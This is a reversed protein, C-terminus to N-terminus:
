NSNQLDVQTCRVRKRNTSFCDAVTLVSVHANDHVLGKLAKALGSHDELVTQIAGRFRFDFRILLGMFSRSGMGHDKENRELNSM